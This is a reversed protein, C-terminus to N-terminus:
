YVQITVLEHLRKQVNDPVRGGCEITLSCNRQSTPRNRVECDAVLPMTDNCRDLDFIIAGANRRVHLVRYKIWEYGAPRLPCAEAQWRCLLQQAAMAPQDLELASRPSRNEEDPNGQLM